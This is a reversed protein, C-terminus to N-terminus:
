RLVGSYTLAASPPTTGFNATGSLTGSGTAYSGTATTVTWSGALSADTPSTFSLTANGTIVLTGRRGTLTRRFTVPVPSQTLPGGFTLEETTGGSDALAGSISFTGVSTTQGTLSQQIDIRVTGGAPETSADCGAVMLAVLPLTAILSRTTM